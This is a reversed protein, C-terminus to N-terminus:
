RLNGARLEALSYFTGRWQIGGQRLTTVTSNVVAAVYAPWVFPTLLAALPHEGARRAVFLAPLVLSFFGLGAALGPASGTLPGILGGLWFISMALVALFAKATQYELLAFFNKEMVKIMARAGGAGWECLVDAEGLFARTRYGARRLLLGLKVDDVVTLRLKEYGGSAEYARRRVLNFAGVGLYARPHGTNTRHMWDAVSVLFLLHWARRWLTPSEVKPTLCVHDAEERRATEIARAIVDPRLWVDADSFLVWEGTARQAGRHCAYCKGLWGAPLQEVTILELGPHRLRAAEVIEATRDTSRDNVVIIQLEVGEQQALRDISTGIRAAENRAPVVVSVKPLPASPKGVLAPLRKVSRAQLLLGLNAALGLFGIAWFLLNIWFMLHRSDQPM